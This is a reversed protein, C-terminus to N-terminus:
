IFGVIIIIMIIVHKDDFAGVANSVNWRSRFVGTELRRTDPCRLWEHQYEDIIAQCVEGIMKTM